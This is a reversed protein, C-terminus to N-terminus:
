FKLPEEIEYINQYRLKTQAIDDDTPILTKPPIMAGVAFRGESNLFNFTACAQETPLIEMSLKLKRSLPILTRYVCSDQIRDGIGVVLIDVKPELITFMALSDENIDEVSAVDWSLVSRSFLYFSLLM